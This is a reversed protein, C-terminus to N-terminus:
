RILITKTVANLEPGFVTVRLEGSNPAITFTAEGKANVTGVQYIVDRQWLCVKANKVGVGVKLSQKKAKIKKPVIVNPLIPSSRRVVLSPDGLLNLECLCWHYGETKRADAEMDKRAAAIAEGATSDKSLAHEWFRTLFETTGDMLGKTIVLRFDARNHLVPVGQRSPAVVVVAGGDKQRLLAEVISPDKRSDFHGVFCSVTTMVPYADKNKLRALHSTKLMQHKELVFGHLLGHGHMHIKGAQKQNLMDLWNTPTLDHDGPAAKDWPTKNAFYRVATGDKWQQQVKKLSTNLKPYAMREPCTYIMKKAFQKTPYRCEYAIVKNTYAKVQDETRVPIRGISVNPCNYTIAKRDQKWERYIGDGDDDWNSETIYYLDTPIDRYGFQPHVTDRDPVVGGGNPESDGGLIVWRTGRTKIYERICHRIKEQIDKGPYNKSIAQVSVITTPKGCQTKWNAFPVWSQALADSTILLVTASVKREIAHDAQFEASAIPDHGLIVVVIGLSFALSKQFLM